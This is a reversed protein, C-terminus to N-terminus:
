AVIYLNQHRYIRCWGMQKDLDAARVAARGGFGSGGVIDFLVKHTQSGGYMSHRRPCKPLVRTAATAPTMM